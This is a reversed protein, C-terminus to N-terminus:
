VSDYMKEMNNGDVKNEVTIRVTKNTIRDEEVKRTYEVTLNDGISIDSLKIDVSYSTAESRLKTDSSVPFIMPMGADITITSGSRDVATVLGEVVRLNPNDLDDDGFSIAPHIFISAALCVAIVLTRAM